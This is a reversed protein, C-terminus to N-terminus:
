VTPAWMWVDMPVALSAWPWLCGVLAPLFCLFHGFLHMSIFCKEMWNKSRINTNWIKCAIHKLDSFSAYWHIGGLHCNGEPHVFGVNGAWWEADRRLWSVYCIHWSVSTEVPVRQIGRTVHSSPFDLLFLTHIPFDDIFQPNDMEM